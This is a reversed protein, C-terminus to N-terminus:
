ISVIPDGSAEAAKASMFENSVFATGAVLTVAAAVIAKTAKM